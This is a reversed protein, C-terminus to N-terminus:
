DHLYKKELYAAREKKYDFDEPLDLVGILRKVNPSIKSEKKESVLKSLISEILKSLSTDQAKAYEKAREIVEKNLKLTLKADM